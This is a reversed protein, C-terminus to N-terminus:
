PLSQIFAIKEDPSGFWKPSKQLIINEGDSQIVQVRLMIQIWEEIIQEQLQIRLDKELCPFSNWQGLQVLYTWWEQKSYGQHLAFRQLGILSRIRWETIGEKLFPGMINQYHVYLPCCSLIKGHQYVDNMLQKNARQGILRKTQNILMKPAPHKLLRFSEQFRLNRHNIDWFLIGLKGQYMQTFQAVKMPHLKRRYRKGLFWYVKINQSQYGNNRKEIQALTLPSCQFEIAIRQNNVTILVDPRQDIESLYLELRPHWGNSHAWEFIQRKGEQHEITEGHLNASNRQHAFFMKGARSRKIVLKNHCTPCHYETNASVKSIHILEDNSNLGIQM